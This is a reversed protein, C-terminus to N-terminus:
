RARRARSLRGLDLELQDFFGKPWSTLEGQPTIEVPTSGLTEEDFFHIVAAAAELTREEAVALRVGNLVHDSHTEVV